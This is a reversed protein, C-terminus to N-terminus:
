RAPDASPSELRDFVLSMRQRKGASESSEKGVVQVHVHMWVAKTGRKRNGAGPPLRLNASDGHAAQKRQRRVFTGGKNKKSTSGLPEQNGGQLRDLASVRKGPSTVERRESRGDRDGTHSSSSHAFENMLNRKPPLDRIRPEGRYSRDAGESRSGFSGSSVSPRAPPPPKQSRRPSARLWEGWQQV